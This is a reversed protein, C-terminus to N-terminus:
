RRSDCRRAPRARRSHDVPTAQRSEVGITTETSQQIPVLAAVERDGRGPAVGARAPVQAVAQDEDRGELRSAVFRSSMSKKAMRMPPRCGAAACARGSRGRRARGRHAEIDPDHGAQVEAFDFGPDMRDAPIRHERTPAVRPQQDVAVHGQLRPRVHGALRAAPGRRASASDPEATKDDRSFRFPARAARHLWAGARGTRLSACTTPVIPPSSEKDHGAPAPMFREAM